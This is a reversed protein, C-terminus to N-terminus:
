KHPIDQIAFERVNSSFKLIKIGNARINIGNNKLKNVAKVIRNTPGCIFNFKDDSM